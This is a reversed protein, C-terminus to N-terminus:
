GARLARRVRIAGGRVPDREPRAAPDLLGGGLAAIAPAEAGVGALLVVVARRRVRLAAVTRRGREILADGLGAHDVAARRDRARGAGVALGLAGRLVADRLADGIGVARRHQAARVLHALLDAAARDAIRGAGARLRALRGAHRRRRIRALAGA